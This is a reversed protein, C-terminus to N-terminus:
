DGSENWVRELYEELPVAWRRFDEASLTMTGWKPSRRKCCRRYSDTEVAFFVYKRGDQWFVELGDSDVDAQKLHFVFVFVARCPSYHRAFMKQWQELAQLDLSTTWGDLGRRGALSFGGFTRGKVEALIAQARDLGLLYDFRKLPSESHCRRGQRIPRYAIRRESLWAEFAAEYANPGEPQLKIRNMM